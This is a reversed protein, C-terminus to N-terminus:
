REIRQHIYLSCNKTGQQANLPWRSFYRGSPGAFSTSTNRLHSSTGLDEGEKIGFQHHFYFRLIMLLLKKLDYSIARVSHNEKCKYMKLKESIAYAAPIQYYPDLLGRLLRDQRQVEKPPLYEFLGTQCETTSFYISRKGNESVLRASYKLKLVVEFSM